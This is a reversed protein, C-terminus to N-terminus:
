PHNAQGSLFAYLIKHGRPQEGAGDHPELTVFVSDIAALQRPDDVKLVWRKQAKDDVYLVGLSKVSAPQGLREGWAEFTYKANAVKKEDLDFAYFILSKGETYFVRGFSRQDKGSGNADHVDIIHLNRAGMLNTIDRGAVLLDRDQDLSATQLRVQESLRSVEGREASVETEMAARDGRAKDLEGKTEALLQSNQEMQAALQSNMDNIRALTQQFDHKEAQSTALEKESAELRGALFANQAKLESVTKELAKSALEIESDRAPVSDARSGITQSGAVPNETKEASVKPANDRSHRLARYGVACVVISAMVGAAIAQRASLVRRLAWLRSSPAREAEESFRRGEARGRALFRERFGNEDIQRLVDRDLIGRKPAPLERLIASFDECAARCSECSALHESLTREEEPSLQGTAALACLEDFEDHKSM